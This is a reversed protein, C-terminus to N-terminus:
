SVRWSGTTVWQSGDSNRLRTSDLILRITADQPSKNRKQMDMATPCSTLQGSMQMYNQSAFVRAKSPRKDDNYFVEQLNNFHCHAPINCLFPYGNPSFLKRVSVKDALATFSCTILIIPKRHISTTELRLQLSTLPLPCPM